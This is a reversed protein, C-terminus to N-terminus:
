GLLKISGAAATEGRQEQQAVDRDLRALLGACWSSVKPDIAPFREKGVSERSISRLCQEDFPLDFHAYVKRFGEAPQQVLDRYRVLLVRPNRHLGLGYYYQTRLYWFLAAGEHATLDPRRRSALGELVSDTLRAGVWATQSFLRDSPDISGCSEGDVVRHVLELMDDGWLRIMSNVADRYDRYIWIARAAPYAELIRDARQNDCLPKFLVQQARCRGILRDIVEFSRLRLRDDFAARHYENYLWLNPSCDLARVLMTTGSRQCGFVFRPQAPEPAPRVTQACRKWGRQLVRQAFRGARRAQRRISNLNSM